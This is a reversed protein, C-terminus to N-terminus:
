LQRIAFYDSEVSIRFAQEPPAVFFLLNNIPNSGSENLLAEVSGVM